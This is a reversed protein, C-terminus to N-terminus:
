LIIKLDWGNQSPRFLYLTANIAETPPGGLSEYLAKFFAAHGVFLLNKEPILSLWKAVTTYSRRKTDLWQEADAPLIKTISKGDPLNHERRVEATYKGEYSGFSREMLLHDVSMSLKNDEAIIAATKLTRLLPSAIMHQLNVGAVKASVTKAQAIGNENLPIDSHGQMRGQLNWDTQGHRVFYFARQPFEM